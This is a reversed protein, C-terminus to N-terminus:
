ESAAIMLGGLKYKASSKKNELTKKAAEEEQEEQNLQNSLVKTAEGMHLSAAYIAEVGNRVARTSNVTTLVKSELYTKKLEDTLSEAKKVAAATSIEGAFKEPLVVQTKVIGTHDELKGHAEAVEPVGSAGEEPDGTKDNM